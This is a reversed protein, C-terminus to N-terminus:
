YRGLWKVDFSTKLMDIMKFVIDEQNISLEFEIYFHYGKDITKKPRSMINTLNIKHMNFFSLVEYLLGPRDKIPTIICASKLGVHQPKKSVTVFRTANYSLDQIDDIHFREDKDMVDKPIIACANNKKALTYSDYNSATLIVNMHPVTKLFDLCQGQVKFQVYIDQARTMDGTCSFYVPLSQDFTIYLDYDIFADITFGVFGDSINEIPILADTDDDVSSFAEQITKVYLPKYTDLYYKKYFIESFTHSPGLFALKKM